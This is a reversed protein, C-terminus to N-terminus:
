GTDISLMVHVKKFTQVFFFYYEMWGLKSTVKAGLVPILFIHYVPFSSSLSLHIPFLSNCQLALFSLYNPSVPPTEFSLYYPVSPTCSLNM